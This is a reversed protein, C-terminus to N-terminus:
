MFNISDGARLYVYAKKLGSQHTGRSRSLTHKVRPRKRIINIKEPTVSYVAQVAAAVDRKTANPAIEFTYVNRQSLGFAKETIRPRKLVGAVDRGVTVAPASAKTEKKSESATKPAEKKTGFLGMRM